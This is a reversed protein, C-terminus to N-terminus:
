RKLNELLASLDFNVASRIEVAFREGPDNKHHLSFDAGAFLTTALAELDPKAAHFSEDTNPVLLRDNILVLAENGRFSFKRQLTPEEEIRRCIELAWSFALRLKERNSGELPQKHNYLLGLRDDTNDISINAEHAILLIGPGSRVHSYDAVDYYYGDAAQIWSHFINIFVTLPVRDSDAVFFKVNIKQLDM